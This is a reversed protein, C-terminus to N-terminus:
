EEGVENEDSSASYAPIEQVHTLNENWKIRKKRGKKIPQNSIENEPGSEYDSVDDGDDERRRKKSVREQTDLVATKGLPENELDERDQEREEYEDDSLIISTDGELEIGMREALLARMRLLESSGPGRGNKEQFQRILHGLVMHFMAMPSEELMEESDDEPVYEEDEEEDSNGSAQKMEVHLYEEAEGSAEAEDSEEENEEPILIDMRKAFCLYDKKTYDQFFTAEEEADDKKNGADSLNKSVELYKKDNGLDSSALDEGLRAQDSQSTVENSAGPNGSDKFKSEDIGNDTTLASRDHSKVVDGGTCYAGNPRKLDEVLDSIKCRQTHEIPDDDEKGESEDDTQVDEDSDTELEDSDDLEEEDDEEENPPVRMLLIDGRVKGSLKHLPPQLKHPNIPKWNMSTNAKSRMGEKTAIVVVNENEYQGLFTIQGGTEGTLLSAVAREKPTTDIEVEEILGELALSRVCQGSVLQVAGKLAEPSSESTAVDGKDKGADASGKEGKSSDLSVIGEPSELLTQSNADEGVAETSIKSSAEDLPDRIASAQCRLLVAKVKNGKETLIRQIDAGTFAPSEASVQATCSKAQLM